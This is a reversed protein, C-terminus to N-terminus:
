GHRGRNKGRRRWERRQERRASEEWHTKPAKKRKKSAKKKDYRGPPVSVVHVGTSSSLDTNIAIEISSSSTVTSMVRIVTIVGEGDCHKCKPIPAHVVAFSEERLERGTGACRPCNELRTSTSEGTTSFDKM